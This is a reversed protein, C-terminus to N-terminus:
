AQRGLVQKASLPLENGYFKEECDRLAELATPTPQNEFCELVLALVRASSVSEETFQSGTTITFESCLKKAIASALRLDDLSLMM